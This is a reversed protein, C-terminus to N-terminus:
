LTYKGQKNKSTRNTIHCTDRYLLLRHASQDSEGHRIIRMEIRLVNAELKRFRLHKRASSISPSLVFQTQLRSSRGEHSGNEEATRTYM